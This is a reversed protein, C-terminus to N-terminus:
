RRARTPRRGPTRISLVITRAWWCAAPARRFFLSRPRLPRRRLLAEAPAPAPQRCLHNQRRGDLVRRDRHGDDGPLRAVGREQFWHEVLGQVPDRHDVLQDPVLPEVPVGLPVGTDVPVYERVDRVLPVPHGRPREVPPRVPPPVPHLPVEAGHVYSVVVLGSSRYELAVEQYPQVQDILFRTEEGNAVQSVHIGDADYANTADIVGDGGTDAGVLRNEQDCVYGMRGGPGDKSLTNGNDDQILSTAQGNLTKTLLRDNFDHVYTTTGENKDTRTERNGV